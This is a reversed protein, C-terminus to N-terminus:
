RSDSSVDQNVVQKDDSSSSHTVVASSLTIARVAKDEGDNNGDRAATETKAHLLM